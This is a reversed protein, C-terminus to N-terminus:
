GVRATWLVPTRNAVDDRRVAGCMRPESMLLLNAVSDRRVAEWM